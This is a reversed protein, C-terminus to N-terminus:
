HLTSKLMLRVADCVKIDTGESLIAVTMSKAGNRIKCKGLVVDDERGIVVRSQPDIVNAGPRFIQLTEGDKIGVETGFNLYLMKNGEKETILAIRGEWPLEDVKKCMEKVALEIANRIAKHLPMTEFKDQGFQIDAVQLDISKAKSYAKGETRVSELVRGTEVEIMKLDIACTATFSANKADVFDGVAGGGGLDSSSKSYSLETVAGRFLIQAGLLKGPGTVTSPDVGPLSLEATVDALDKRELVIFRKTALLATNLMDAMGDGFDMNGTIELKQPKYGGSPLAVPFLISNVKVSFGPVAARKKPGFYPPMKTDQGTIVKSQDLLQNQQNSTQLAFALFLPLAIM